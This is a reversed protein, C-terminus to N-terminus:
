TFEVVAQRPWSVQAFSIKLRVSMKRALHLEYIFFIVIGCTSSRTPRKRCLKLIFYINKIKLAGKM